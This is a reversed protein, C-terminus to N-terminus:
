KNYFKYLYFQAIIRFKISLFNNCVISRLVRLFFEKKLVLKIRINEERLQLFVM